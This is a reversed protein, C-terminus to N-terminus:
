VASGPLVPLLDVVRPGVGQAAPHARRTMASRSRCATANEPCRGPGLARRSRSSRPTPVSETSSSGCRRSRPGVLQLRPSRLCRPGHSGRSRYAQTWASCPSASRSGRSRVSQLPRTGLAGQMLLIQSSGGGRSRRPVGCGVDAAAAEPHRRPLYRPPLHRPQRRSRCGRCSAWLKAAWAECARPRAQRAAHTACATPDTSAARLRGAVGRPRCGATSSM